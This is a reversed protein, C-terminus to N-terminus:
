ETSLITHHWDNYCASREWFTMFDSIKRFM